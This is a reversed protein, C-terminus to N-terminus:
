GGMEARLGADAPLDLEGKQRLRPLPEGEVLRFETQIGFEEDLYQSLQGFEEFCRDDAIESFTSIQDLALSFSIRGRDLTDVTLLLRSGRDGERELAPGAVERFGMEACVQRLAKLLYLRKQHRDEQEEAWGAKKELEAAAQELLPQAETYREAELLQRARPGADALGQLQEPPFWLALLPRGAAYRSELEALQGALQQGLQGAQRTLAANLVGQAQRGAAAIEELIAQDARLMALDGNWELAPVEPLDQELWREARAVEGAFTARLGASAGALLATIQERRGAVEARLRRCGRIAQSVARQQERLRYGSRKYGSM